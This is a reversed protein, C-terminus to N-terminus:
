NAQYDFDFRMVADPPVPVMAVNQPCTNHWVFFAKRQVSYYVGGADGYPLAASGPKWTAGGDASILVYQMGLAAIRKDPLEIPHSRTIVAAGPVDDWTQGMDSSRAFGGDPSAWYITGDSAVLPESGGGAASVQAWSAGGDTSRYIGKVNGSYGTCGALYTQAAVVLPLTCNGNMPLNAGINDPWTMGGDTSRVLTQPMEHGGALIMMRAPDMFDISVEDCRGMTGLQTFTAGDDKTEYVGGGNGYIGSEWFRQHDQPDYLIGTTRNSIMASGAGTGLAQWSQGGDRSAWLGNLAIGAILMDEDPKASLKSLNGCESAM